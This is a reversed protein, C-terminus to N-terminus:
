TNQLWNDSYCTIQIEIEILLKSFLDYMNAVIM